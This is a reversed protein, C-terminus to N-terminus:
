LLCVKVQLKTAKYTLVEFETCDLSFYICNYLYIRIQRWQQKM